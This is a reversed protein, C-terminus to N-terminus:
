LYISFANKAKLLVNYYNEKIRCRGVRIYVVGKPFVVAKWFTCCIAACVASQHSKGVLSEDAPGSPAAEEFDSFAVSAPWCGAQIEEWTKTHQCCQMRGMLLMYMCYIVSSFSSCQNLEREQRSKAQAYKSFTKTSNTILLSAPGLSSRVAEQM